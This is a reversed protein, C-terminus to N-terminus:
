RYSLISRFLFQCDIKIFIDILISTNFFLEVSVLYSLHYLMIVFKKKDNEYYTM